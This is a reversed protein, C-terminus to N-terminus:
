FSHKMIETAYLQNTLNRTTNKTEYSSMQEILITMKCHMNSMQDRFIMIQRRTKSMQKILITIKRRINSMHDRIITIKRRTKPTRHLRVDM